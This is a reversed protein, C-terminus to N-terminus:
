KSTLFDELGTVGIYKKEFFTSSRKTAKLVRAVLATEGDFYFLYLPDSITVNKNETSVPTAGGSIQKQCLRLRQQM